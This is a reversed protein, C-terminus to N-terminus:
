AMADHGASGPERDSTAAVVRPTLLAGAVVLASALLGFAWPTAEATLWGIAMVALLLQWTFVPARAWRRGSWLARAGAVLVAAIGVAFLVLFATAGLVQARGRVLEIVWVGGLGALAAAQLIVLACVLLLAPPRATPPM